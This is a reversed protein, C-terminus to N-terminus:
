QVLSIEKHIQSFSKAWPGLNRLGESLQLETRRAEVVSPYDGLLVMYWPAGGRVTQYVLVRGLLDYQGIFSKLDQQTQFAGLQLAYRSSPITLLMQNAIPIDAQEMAQLGERSALNQNTDKNQEKLMADVVESDLVVSKADDQASGVAVNNGHTQGPLNVNDEQALANIDIKPRESVVTETKNTFSDWWKALFQGPSMGNPIQLWFIVTAVLLLLLIAVTTPIFMSRSKQPATRLKPYACDIIAGPLSPVDQARVKFARRANADMQFSQVIATSLLERESDSLPTVDIEVPKEEQYKAAKQLQKNLKCPRAFLLVSIQWGVREQAVTVLQWLEKAVAASLLHADDIVILAHIADDKLMTTLSEVLTDEANFIGDPVIQRLIIARHQADQQSPNCLLLTQATETACKDLYRESLWTKGAGSEGTVLVLQSSFRMLFQIRSLLQEQSNLELEEISYKGVM